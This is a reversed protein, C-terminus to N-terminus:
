IVNLVFFKLYETEEACLLSPHDPAQSKIEVSRVTRGSAAASEALMKEFLPLTMYHSCSATALYGGSKVLKMALINIDRYGRFADKVNDATKAFAPPDLIILDFARNEKKFNRLIEFVDGQMTTIKNELGNLKANNNVSDLASQSIDVSLVSKAGGLAANLSFGGSNCFCDLVDKDRSYRRIAFRNEKQDLFYGTKQGNEVDVLMKMGNETIEVTTDFEGYLKQKTQPLGEKDRVAVDSREYIGRPKFLKILCDTILAKNKDM